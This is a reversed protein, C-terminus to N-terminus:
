RKPGKLSSPLLLERIEDWLKLRDREVAFIQASMEGEVPTVARVGKVMRLANLTAAADESRLDEDLMVVYGATRTM